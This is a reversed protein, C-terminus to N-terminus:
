SKALRAMLSAPTIEGILTGNETVGVTTAGNEIERMAAQIWEDADISVKPKGKTPRM